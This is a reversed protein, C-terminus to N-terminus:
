KENKNVRVTSIARLKKIVDPLVKLVYKIDETSTEKGFSFRISGHAWEHPVRIALLVHSPDLTRSTCASGTSAYIGLSDLHLLIAEGEVGYFSLNVNNPLRKTAHGNLKVEPIKEMVGKILMDRLGTLRKVEEKRGEEALELANAFGMIGPVNETGARKGSEQAGGHILPEVHLDNKLYLLGVGKPGYIKSGNLSMMDVGLKEVDLDLYCAAQCADTHLKIEKERCVNSIEKLNQVTGIENNAYIVSVLFTEKKIANKLEKLDVLGDNGVRLYTVDFGKKELYECTHLVAHHEISTTVIHNKGEPQVYALGKIALNVSETGSGTFIIENSRSNIIKAVRERAYDLAKKAKLGYSHFSGPNGYLETCYKNMEERVNADVKTTAANDLYIGHDSENKIKM